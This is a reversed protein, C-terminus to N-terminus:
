NKTHVNSAGAPLDVIHGYPGIIGDGNEFRRLMDKNVEQMGLLFFEVDNSPRTADLPTALPADPAAPHVLKPTVIIVLDSEQKQYNSSRFLTGLVPIQGLWPIQQQTKRNIAQLLGAMAFSQGDRLELTTVANRTTFSPAAVGNVVVPQSTDVDSV